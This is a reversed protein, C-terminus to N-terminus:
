KNQGLAMHIFTALNQSEVSSLPLIQGGGHNKGNAKDLLVTKSNTQNQIYKLTQQFNQELYDDENNHLLIFDTDNGASEPHHCLVCSLQAIPLSINDQWYHKATLTQQKSLPNKVIDQKVLPEYHRTQCATLLSCLLASALIYKM